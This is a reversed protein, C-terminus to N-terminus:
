LWSIHFIGKAVDVLIQFVFMAALGKYFGRDEDSM